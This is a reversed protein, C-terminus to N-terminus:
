PLRSPLLVCADSLLVSCSSSGDLRCHRSCCCVRMLSCCVAVCVAVSCCVSCCVCVRERYHAVATKVATASLLLVCADSLAPAWPLQVLGNMRLTELRAEVIRAVELADKAQMCGCACVCVYVCVCM